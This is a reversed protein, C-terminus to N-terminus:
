VYTGVAQERIFACVCVRVCVCVCVCVRVCVCVCVCVCMCMHVCACVSMWMCVCTRVCLGTLQSGRKYTLASRRRTLSVHGKGARSAHMSMCVHTVALSIFLNFLSCMPHNPYDVLSM